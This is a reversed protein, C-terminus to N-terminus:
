RTLMNMRIETTVSATNKKWIVVGVVVSVILIAIIIVIILIIWWSTTASNANLNQTSSSNTSYQLTLSSFKPVVLNQQLFEETFTKQDYSQAISNAIKTPTDFTSGSRKAVQQLQIILSCTLVSQSFQVNIVQFSSPPVGYELALSSILSDVTSNVTSTDNANIITLEAMTVKITQLNPVDILFSWTVPSNLINGDIDTVSSVTVSITKFNIADFLFRPTFAFLYSSGQCVQLLTLTTNTGVVLVNKQTLSVGPCFFHSTSLLLFKVELKTYM